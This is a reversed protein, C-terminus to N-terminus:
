FGFTGYALEGDLRKQNEDIRGLKQGQKIPMGVNLYDEYLINMDWMNDCNRIQSRIAHYKGLLSAYDILYKDHNKLVRKVLEGKQMGRTMCLIDIFPTKSNEDETFRRAEELQYLWSESEVDCCNKFNKFRLDFEHEIVLIAQKKMYSLALQINKTEVRKKKKVHVMEGEDNMEMVYDKYHSRVEGQFRPANIFEKEDIEIYRKFCSKVTEFVLKNMKVTSVNHFNFVVSYTTSHPKIDAVRLTDEHILMYIYGEKIREKDKIFKKTELELPHQPVYKPRLFEEDQILDAPIRKKWATDEKEKLFNRNTVFKNNEM